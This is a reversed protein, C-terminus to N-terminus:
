GSSIPIRSLQNASTSATVNAPNFATTRRPNQQLKKLHIVQSLQFCLLVLFRTAGPFWFVLFRTSGLFDLPHKKQVLNM